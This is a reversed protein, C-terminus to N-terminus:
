SEAKRRKRIIEKRTEKSHNHIWEFNGLYLNLEFKRSKKLNESEVWKPKLKNGKSDVKGKNKNYRCYLPWMKKVAKTNKTIIADFLTSDYFKKFGINHVLVSIALHEHRKHQPLINSIENYIEEFKRHLEHEAEEYTIKECGLPKSGFGQTKQNAPCEYVFERFGERRKIEWICPAYLQSFIPFSICLLFLTHLLKM